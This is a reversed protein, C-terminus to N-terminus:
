DALLWALAEKESVFVNGVLGRNTAAKIELKDSDMMEPRAVMVLKVGTAAAKSWAQAFEYRELVTPSRHCDWGRTDVLLNRIGQERAFSLAQIIKSAAVPFPGGGALRYCGYGELVEFHDPAKMDRKHSNRM